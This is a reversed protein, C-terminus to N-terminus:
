WQSPCKKNRRTSNEGDDGNHHVSKGEEREIKDTMVMIVSVKEKKEGM